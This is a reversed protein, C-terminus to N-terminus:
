TLDLWILAFRFLAQRLNFPSTVIFNTSVLPSLTSTTGDLLPNHASLFATIETATGVDGAIVNVTVVDM